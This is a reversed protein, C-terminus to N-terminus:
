KISIEEEWLWCLGYMQERSAKSLLSRRLKKSIVNAYRRVLLRVNKASKKVSIITYQETRYEMRWYIVSFRLHLGLLTM